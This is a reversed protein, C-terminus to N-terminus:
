LWSVQRGFKRALNSCKLTCTSPFSCVKAYVVLEGFLDQLSELDQEGDLAAENLLAGTSDNGHVPGVHVSLEVVVGVLSEYVQWLYLDM